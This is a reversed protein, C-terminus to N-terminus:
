VKIYRIDINSIDGLIYDLSSNIEDTLYIIDKVLNKECKKYTKELSKAIITGTNILNVDPLISQITKKFLPYHTCGLVLAEIGNMDKLYEKLVLKSVQNEIWGEEALPALLPCAKSIVEINKNKKLIESEWKKSGITGKTAIVGIKKYKNECIYQVTGEIIGIIPINYIKKVEDLAQSTATGCAIIICKVGQEILFNINSKVINTIQKKSKNGYPFNKLDGLYIINQNPLLKKIEKYVTIGGIGSDMMGIINKEM